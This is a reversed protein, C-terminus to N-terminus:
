RRRRNTFSVLVGLLAILVLFGVFVQLVQGVVAV